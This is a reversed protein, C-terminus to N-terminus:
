QLWVLYSRDCVAVLPQGLLSTNIFLNAARIDIIRYAMDILHWNHSLIHTSAVHAGKFVATIAGIEIPDGLATGTGHMELADVENPFLAGETLAGKIVM